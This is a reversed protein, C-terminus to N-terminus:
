DSELDAQPAFMPSVIFGALEATFAHHDCYLRTTNLHTRKVKYPKGSQLCGNWCCTNEFDSSHTLLFRLLERMESAGLAIEVGDMTKIKM